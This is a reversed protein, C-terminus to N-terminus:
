LDNVWNSNKAVHNSPIADATQTPQLIRQQRLWHLSTRLKVSTYHKTVARFVRDGGDIAYKCSVRILVAYMTEPRRARRGGVRIDVHYSYKKDKGSSIM